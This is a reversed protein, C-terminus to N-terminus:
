VVAPVTVGSGVSVGVRVCVVVARLFLGPCVGVSDSVLVSVLVTM